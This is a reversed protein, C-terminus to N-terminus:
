SPRVVRVTRKGLGFGFRRRALRLKQYEESDPLYVEWRGDGTAMKNADVAFPPVGINLGLELMFRLRRQRVIINNDTSSSVTSRMRSPPIQGLTGHLFIFLLLSLLRIAVVM